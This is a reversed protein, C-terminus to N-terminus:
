IQLKGQENQVSRVCQKPAEMASKSCTFAPQSFLSSGKRGIFLKLFDLWSRTWFAFYFLFFLLTEIQLWTSILLEANDPRIIVM